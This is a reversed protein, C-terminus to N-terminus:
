AEVYGEPKTVRVYESAARQKDDPFATVSEGIVADFLGDRFPLNQVDAVVFRVRNGLGEGRARENARKIMRESIDVGIVRCGYMKAIYCSTIGVGCGVELVYKGENIHCLEILEKTAKLGGIYTEHRGM